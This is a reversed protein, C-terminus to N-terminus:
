RICVQSRQILSTSVQGLVDIVSQFEQANLEKIKEMEATSRLVGLLVAEFDLLPLDPNLIDPWQHPTSIIHGNSDSDLGKKL